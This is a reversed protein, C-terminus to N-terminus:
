IVLIDEIKPTLSQHMLKEMKMYKINSYSIICIHRGYIQGTKLVGWGRKLRRGFKKWGRSRPSGIEFSVGWKRWIIVM